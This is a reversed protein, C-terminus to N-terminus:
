SEANSVLVPKAPSPGPIFWARYPGWKLRPSATFVVGGPDIPEVARYFFSATAQIPQVNRSPLSRLRAM